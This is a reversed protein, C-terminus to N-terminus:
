KGKKMDRLVSHAEQSTELPTGSFPLEDFLKYLGNILSGRLEPHGPSTNDVFDRIADAIRMKRATEQAAQRVRIDVVDPDFCMVGFSQKKSSILSNNQSYPRVSNVSLM